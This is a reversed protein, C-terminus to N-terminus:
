CQRNLMDSAVYMYVLENCVNCDCMSFYNSTVENVCVMSVCQVFSYEKQMAKMIDIQRTLANSVVYM